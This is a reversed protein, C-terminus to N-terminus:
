EKRQLFALLLSLVRYAPYPLAFVRSMPRKLVECILFAADVSTDCRLTWERARGSLKSIDLGVKQHETHLMTYQMAIKVERIWFLLNDGEKGEFTNM